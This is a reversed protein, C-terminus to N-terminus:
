RKNFNNLRKHVIVRVQQGQLRQQLHLRLPQKANVMRPRMMATRPNIGVMGGMQQMMPNFGPGPHGQMPGPGPGPGPGTGPGPTPGPNPGPGPGYGGQMGMSPPGPYGPGYMVKPDMSM